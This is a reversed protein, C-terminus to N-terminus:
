SYNSQILSPKFLFEYLLLFVTYKFVFDKINTELQSIMFHVIKSNGVILSM